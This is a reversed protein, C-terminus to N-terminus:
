AAIADSEEQQDNDDNEAHNPWNRVAPPGMYLSEVAFRWFNVPDAPEPKEVEKADSGSGLKVKRFEIKLYNRATKADCSAAAQVEKISRLRYVYPGFVYEAEPNTEPNDTTPFVKDADDIGYEKFVYRIIQRGTPQVKGAILFTITQRDAAFPAPFTKPAAEATKAKSKGM